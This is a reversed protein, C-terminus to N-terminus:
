LRWLDLMIKSLTSRMNRQGYRKKIPLAVDRVFTFRRDGERRKKAGYQSAKRQKRRGEV